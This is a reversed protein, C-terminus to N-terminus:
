LKTREPSALANRRMLQTYVAQHITAGAIDEAVDHQLVQSVVMPSHGDVACAAAWQQVDVLQGGFSRLVLLLDVNLPHSAFMLKRLAAVTKAPLPQAQM